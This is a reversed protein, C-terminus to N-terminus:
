ERAMVEEHIMKRIEEATALNLAEEAIRTAKQLTIKSIHEKFKPISSAPMSFEDLGFGLLIAAADLSGAMEGCMGTWKGYRHSAAIVNKILMLVAPNFYDYLTAIEKNMRDCAVTYQVLDNTGISFFDVEQALIDAAIAASPIEVMIGIEIKEDYAQGKEDLQQMAEQIFAKAKRVEQVSSIMPFMIRMKGYVSARLLARLQTLFMEPRAFCLRIARLGLFPNDEHPIGMYSLNKDGGIDLTRVIVPLPAMKAMIKKYEQFQTEEDPWDKQDMYLFETRYLGIGEGGNKLVEDCDESFAINASVEVTRLKCSTSACCHRFVELRMNEDIQSQKKLVYEETLSADPNVIVKGEYGDVILIDGDAITKIEGGLGSVAPIGMCRAMIAVHSTKGGTGTVIAQVKSRDLNAFMSPTLDDAIMIGPPHAGTEDGVPIGMLNKLVRTGIDRIDAAREVFVPDQLAEMMLAFENIVVDTAREARMFKESINKIGKEKLVPDRIIELHASFIQHKELEKEINIREILMHIQKESTEFAAKLREIEEIVNEKQILCHDYVLESNTIMVAQGIEIGPSVGLGKLM